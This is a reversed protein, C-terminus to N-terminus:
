QTPIEPKVETVGQLLLISSNAQELRTNWDLERKNTGLMYEQFLTYNKYDLSVIANPSDAKAFKFRAPKFPSPKEIPPVKVNTQERSAVVVSPKTDTQCATLFLAGAAVLILNRLNM